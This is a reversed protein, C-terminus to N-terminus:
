VDEDSRSMRLSEYVPILSLLIVVTAVVNVVSAQNPRAMEKLIWLPLTEVGPPATFITVIVEDFSLAFALIAGAVFAPRFQPFTVLRFTQWM